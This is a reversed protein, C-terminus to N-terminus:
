FDDEDCRQIGDIVAHERTRMGYKKKIARYADDRNVRSGARYESWFLLEIEPEDGTHFFCIYLRMKRM